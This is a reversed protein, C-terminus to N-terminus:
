YHKQYFQPEKEDYSIYQMLVTIILTNRSEKSAFLAINNSSPCFGDYYESYHFRSFTKTISVRFYLFWELARKLTLPRLKVRISNACNAGVAVAGGLLERFTTM